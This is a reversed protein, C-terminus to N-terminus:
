DEDKFEDIARNALRDAERNDERGLHEIEFSELQSILESARAFLPKLGPNKVKYSGKIQMVMLESDTRVVVRTAGMDLVRELGIILASYEAQNNTKRGLYQALGEVTKGDKYIVVGAGAPGPNGRSAGDTNITFIGEKLPPKEKEGMLSAARLLVAKLDESHLGHKKLAAELDLTEALTYLV